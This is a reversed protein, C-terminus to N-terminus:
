AHGLCQQDESIIRDRSNMLAGLSRINRKFIEFKESDQEKYAEAMQTILWKMHEQM